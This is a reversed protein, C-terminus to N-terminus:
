EKAKTWLLNCNSDNQESIFKSVEGFIEYIVKLINPWLPVAYM